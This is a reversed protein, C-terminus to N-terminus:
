FHFSFFIMCIFMNSDDAYANRILFVVEIFIIKINVKEGKTEILLLDYYKICAYSDRPTYRTTM